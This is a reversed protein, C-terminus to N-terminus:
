ANEQVRVPSIVESMRGNYETRCSSCIKLSRNKAVVHLEYAKHHVQWCNLCFPQGMPEGTDNLEYIADRVRVMKDKKNFAEELEKIRTEKESLLEQIEALDIRADALAGILDAFKLKMEASELNFGSEKILKAIDTAAKVSTLISTITAIDAM